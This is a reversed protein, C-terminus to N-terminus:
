DFHMGYPEGLRYTRLVLASVIILLLIFVDLRDLRGHPEGALEASRDRRSRQVRLRDEFWTLAGISPLEWSRGEDVTRSGGPTASADRVAEPEAAAMALAPTGAGTFVPPRWRTGVALVRALPDPVRLGARRLQWAVFLFAGFQLLASLVVFPYTHFTPGLLLDEINPTAYLPITLIAHLNMFSGVALALLAWRWKRAAVALIPLFAFVPFIYREHVRTPLIFFCLCLFTTVLVISWRDARWLLRIFGALFGIALLVTGIIVGSLPGVLAVTDSSWQGDTALSPTGGGGILAWLNYANVSLYQYGSATRALFGIFSPISFGFPTILVLLVVLGVVGSTILRPWGQEREMWDAIPRPLRPRHPPGSGRAILHRRLLVAIVVPVLVVGFQPKIVGALVAIATAGESHGRLLLAVAGLMVVAGVADTQGWIASDYWTVPNFLYLAAAILGLRVASRGQEAHAGAWGRVMRYLLYAVGIDAIMSPLKILLTGDNDTGFGAETAFKAILGCIWLIYLYGPPYDAFDASAYFQGPGVEALLTAWYKYTGIDSEFGSGPFIIHAITLRFVFGALLLLALAPLASRTASPRESTGPVRDVGRALTSTM